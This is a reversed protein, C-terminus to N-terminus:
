RERRPTAAVGRQGRPGPDAVAARPDRPARAGRAHGAVSRGRRGARGARGRAPILAGAHIDVRAIARRRWGVDTGFSLVRNLFDYRTAIRDFMTAIDRDHADTM